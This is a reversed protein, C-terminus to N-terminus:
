ETHQATLAALNLPRAEAIRPDIHTVGNGTPRAMHPGDASEREAEIALIAALLRCQCGPPADLAVRMPCLIPSGEHAFKDALLARGAKTRPTTM